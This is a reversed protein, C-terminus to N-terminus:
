GRGKEFAALGRPPAPEGLLKAAEDEAVYSRAEGRVFVHGDGFPRGEWDLPLYADDDLEGLVADLYDICRDMADPGRAFVFIEHARTEEGVVCALVAADDGERGDVTLPHHRQELAVRLDRLLEPDAPEPTERPDPANRSKM